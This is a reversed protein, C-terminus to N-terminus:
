VDGPRWTSPSMLARRSGSEFLIPSHAHGYFLMQLTQKKGTILKLAKQLTGLICFIEGGNPTTVTQAPVILTELVDGSKDEAYLSVRLLNIVVELQIFGWTGALARAGKLDKLFQQTEKADLTVVFVDHNNVVRFQDAIPTLHKEKIEGGYEVLCDDVGEPADDTLILHGSGLRFEGGEIRASICDGAPGSFAGNM